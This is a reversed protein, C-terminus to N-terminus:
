NYVKLFYANGKNAITKNLNPNNEMIKIAEVVEIEFNSRGIYIVKFRDYITNLCESCTNLHTSIATNTNCHERVRQHLRRKTKGIYQCEPDVQCSFLYVVNSKM